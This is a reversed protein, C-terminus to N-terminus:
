NEKRFQQLWLKDEEKLTTTKERLRDRLSILTDLELYKLLSPNITPDEKGYSMLEEIEKLLMKKDTEQERM